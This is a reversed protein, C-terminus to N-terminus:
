NIIVTMGPSNHAYLEIESAMIWDDSQIAQLSFTDVKMDLDPLTVAVMSGSGPPNPIRYGRRLGDSNIVIISSPLAVGASGDSDALYVTASGVRVSSTLSLEVRMDSDLWGVLPGTTPSNPWVTASSIGNTLEGGSDPYSASIPTIPTYSQIVHTVKAPIGIEAVYPNVMIEDIFIWKNDTRKNAIVRVYRADVDLAGSQIVYRHTGTKGSAVPDVTAVTQFISGDSSVAFVFSNPFYIGLPENYLCDIEITKIKTTAGLDITAVVDTNLFGLWDEATHSLNINAMGDVLGEPGLGPYSSHAAPSLTITDGEAAHSWELKPIAPTMETWIAAFNDAIQSNATQEWYSTNDLRLALTTMIFSQMWGTLTGLMGWGHDSNSGFIEWRDYDFSRFWTDALDARSDSVSQIRVLFEALKDAGAIYDANGTARAAENLAFFGFNITYLMDAAPDGDVQIVPSENGGYGSNSSPPPYSGWGTRGLEERVAGSAVQDDLFDTVVLDLWDRHQQTDEVRILWALPLIMRAREQQIGNTWRWENPYRNMMETIGTRTKTLLGEEGTKDYLWLYTAWLWSQMHPQAIIPTGRSLDQWTTNNITSELMANAYKFGTSGATRYNALILRVIDDDWLSVDLTDAAMIAGLIVRANDDGYYYGKHTKAWGVLGYSTAAPNLSGSTKFTTTDFLFSLLNTAITQKEADAVVSDAMAMIMATEAVCDARLWYRYQQSGDPYLVSFHGELVGLSGDGSPQSLDMPPGVPVSRNNYTNWTDYWDPHILFRSNEVWEGARIVAQTYANAPLLDFEGYTPRVPPVWTVVTGDAVVDLHSLIKGAIVGCTDMPSYRSKRYDSLKTTCVLVGTDSFLLPATATDGLGFVATDYGAVKAAQLYATRDSIDVYSFIGADLIDNTALAAGFLSTDQVVCREKSIGTINRTAGSPIRDTFEVYLNLNSAASETYFAASVVSKNTPYGDALILVADGSQTASFDFDVLTDYRLCSGHAAAIYRYLDNTAEAVVHVSPALALAGQSILCFCLCTLLCWWGRCIEVSNKANM